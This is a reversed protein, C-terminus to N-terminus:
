SAQLSSSQTVKSRRSPSPQRLYGQSGAQDGDCHRSCWVDTFEHVAAPGLSRGRTALYAPCAVPLAAAYRVIALLLNALNESSACNSLTFNSAQKGPLSVSLDHAASSLLAVTRLSCYWKARVYAANATPEDHMRESATIPAKAQFVIYVLASCVSAAHM